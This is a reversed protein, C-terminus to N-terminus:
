LADGEADFEPKKPAEAERVIYELLEKFNRIGFMNVLKLKQAATRIPYDIDVGKDKRRRVVVHGDCYLGPRVKNLLAIEENSIRSGILLGHHYMKRKLKLQPEGEQPTWPTQRKRTTVTKKQQPKTAEIATVLANVLENHPSQEVETQKKTPM